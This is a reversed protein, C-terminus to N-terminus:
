GILPTCVATSRKFDYNDDTTVQEMTSSVVPRPTLIPISMMLSEPMDQPPKWKEIYMDVARQLDNRKTTVLTEKFLILDDICDSISECKLLRDALELRSSASDLSEKYTFAVFKLEQDSLETFVSALMARFAICRQRTKRRPAEAM